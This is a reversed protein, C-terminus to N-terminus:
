VCKSHIIHSGLEEYEKRTVWKDNFEENMAMAAAGRWTWNTRDMLSVINVQYDNVLGRLEKELRTDFGRIESVGGSLVVNGFLIKRLNDDDCNMVAENVMYHVGDYLGVPQMFKNLLGNVDGYLLSEANNEM